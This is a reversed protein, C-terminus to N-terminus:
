NRGAGIGGGGLRDVRSLRADRKGEKNRCKEVKNLATM